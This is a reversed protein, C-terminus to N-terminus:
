PAPTPTAMPTPLSSFTVKYGLMNASGTSRCQFTSTPDDFPYSYCTPCAMKLNVLWPQVASAWTPNNSVTSGSTYCASTAQTPWYSFLANAAATGCGCCLTAKRAIANLRGV